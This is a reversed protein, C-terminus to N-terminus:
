VFGEEICISRGGDMVRHLEKEGYCLCVYNSVWANRTIAIFM